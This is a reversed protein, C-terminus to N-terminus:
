ACFQIDLDAKFAESGQDWLGLSLDRSSDSGGRIIVIMAQGSVWGGRDVVEQIPTTLDPTAFRGPAGLNPDDWLVTSTGPRDSIDNAVAVFAIPDDAAEAYVTHEPEDLTGSFVQVTISASEIMAGNPVTVGDWRFGAYEDVRDLNTSTSGNIVVTASSFQSADDASAAITGNFTQGCEEEEDAVAGVRRRIPRPFGM